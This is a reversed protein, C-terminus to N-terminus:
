WYFVTTESVELTWWYFVTTTSPLEWHVGTPSQPQVPCSGTYVLLLSHNYQAAGMTCWYSVTTTGPLEWHVGTPSHPQVPCSGIDGTSSQQKVSKWHGGTSYQPQVPCSGTYVLLLSHNFQAAGLTCWYSVTTTSPLEWHVGTPSQRM